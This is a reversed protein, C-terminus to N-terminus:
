PSAHQIIGLIKEDSSVGMEGITHHDPQEDDNSRLHFSCIPNFDLELCSSLVTELQYVGITGGAQFILTHTSCINSTLCSNSCSLLAAKYPFSSSHPDVTEKHVCVLEGAPDFEIFSFDWPLPNSSTGTPFPVMNVACVM